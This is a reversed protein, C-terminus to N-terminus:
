RIVLHFYSEMGQYGMTSETRREHADVWNRQNRNSNRDYLDSSWLMFKDKREPLQAKSATLGDGATYRQQPLPHRPIRPEPDQDITSFMIDRLRKVVEGFTPREQWDAKWCMKMVDALSEPCSEPIKPRVGEVIGVVIAPTDLGEFPKRGTIMEHLLIAFSFVDTASSVKGNQLVEPPMHDVTGMSHTTM